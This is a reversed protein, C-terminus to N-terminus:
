YMIYLFFCLIVHVRGQDELHIDVKQQHLELNSKIDEIEKQHNLIKESISGNQHNQIKGRVTIKPLYQMRKEMKNEPLNQIEKAISAPHLNMNKRTHLKQHYHLDKQIISKQLIKQNKLVTNINIMMNATLKIKARKPFLVIYYLIIKKSFLQLLMFQYLINCVQM